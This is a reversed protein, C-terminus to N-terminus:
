PFGWEPSWPNWFDLSQFLANLSSADGSDPFYLVHNVGDGGLGTVSISWPPYAIGVGFEWTTGVYSESDVDKYYGFNVNVADLTASLDIGGEADTTTDSEVTPNASNSYAMEIGVSLEFGIISTLAGDGSMDGTLVGAQASLDVSSVLEFGTQTGDLSHVM